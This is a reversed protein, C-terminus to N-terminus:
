AEPAPVEASSEPRPDSNAAGAITAVANEDRVREERGGDPAVPNADRRRSCVSEPVRHEADINVRSVGRGTRILAITEDPVDDGSVSKRAARRDTDRVTRM